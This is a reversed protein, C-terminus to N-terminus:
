TNKCLNIMIGVRLCVLGIPMNYSKKRRDGNFKQHVMNITYTNNTFTTKM